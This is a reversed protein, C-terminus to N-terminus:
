YGTGCWSYCRKDRRRPSQLKIDQVVGVTVDRTEEGPARYSKIDQVVGRWVLQLMEQRMEYLEKVRLIRYWVM